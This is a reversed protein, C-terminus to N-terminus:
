GNAEGNISETKAASEQARLAANLQADREKIESDHQAKMSEIQMEAQAKMREIMIENRAKERELEIEAQLKQREMEMEAQMKQMELQADQQKGQQDMQMEQQKLALKGKAEVMKPDEKPPPPPTKEPDSVVLDPDKWGNNVAFRKMVNYLNKATFIPGSLGGQFEIGTKMVGLMQMDAAVQSEKTGHGLGVNITVDMEANWSRPDMEVWENRLRITRPRDQHTVVLKLIKRFGDKFGNAMVRAVLLMRMQSRNLLQNVGTATKNLSDADLGQNYRTVGMRTERMSEVYEIAQLIEGGIPVTVIPAQVASVDGEIRVPLGVRNNLYDDINVRKFDLFHRANNIHYINDFWSRVFGTKMLQIDQAQDPVSRGYFKHPMRVPTITFFPHDDVEENDLIVSFNSGACTVKRFEAKGDGDFDVRIFCEYVWVERMAPDSRTTSEFFDNEEQFRAQRATAWDAEDGTPIREIDEEDYGMERLDSVTKETRHYLFHADDLSVARREIGFEEPPIAMIRIRGSQTTREIKVDHLVGDPVVQMLEPPVQKEEHELLEIEPDNTLEQFKLSNVNILRETKAVPTDDWWIKGIGNKLLLADKITDHFIEFGKNENWLYNVYDTAQRSFEEDEKSQPEFRMPEDGATFIEMLDPMMSEVIDQIDSTVVQSRGEQENGLPRQYYYDLAKKQEQEISGNTWTASATIENSIISSLESETMPKLTM